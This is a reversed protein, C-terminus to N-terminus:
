KKFFNTNQGVLRMKNNFKAKGGISKYLSQGSAVKGDPRFNNVGVNKSSSTGVGGLLNYVAYDDSTYV